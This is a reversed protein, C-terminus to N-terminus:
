CIPQRLASQQTARSPRASILNRSHRRSVFSQCTPLASPEKPGMDCVLCVSHGRNQLGVALAVVSPWDGGGRASILAVISLPRTPPTDPM